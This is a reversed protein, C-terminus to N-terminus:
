PTRGHRNAAVEDLVKSERRDEEAAAAQRRRDELRETIELEQKARRWVGRTAEEQLSATEAHRQAKAMAEWTATQATFALVPDAAFGLADQHLRTREDAEASAVRSAQIARAVQAKERREWIERVRVLKRM